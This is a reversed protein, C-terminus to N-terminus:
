FVPQEVEEVLFDRFIGCIRYDVEFTVVNFDGKGVSVGVAFGIVGKYIPLMGGLPSGM